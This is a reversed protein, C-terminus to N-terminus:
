WGCRCNVCLCPNCGCLPNGCAGTSYSRTYTGGFPGRYTEAYSRRQPVAYMPQYYVPASYIPTSYIVTPTSYAPASYLGGNDHVVRSPAQVTPTIPVLRCSNGDCVKRYGPPQADAAFCCCLVAFLCAIAILLKPPRMTMEKRSQPVM